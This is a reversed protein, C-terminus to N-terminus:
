PQPRSSLNEVSVLAITPFTRCVATLLGLYDDRSMQTAIGIEVTRALKPPSRGPIHEHDSHELERLYTAIRDLDFVGNEVQVASFENVVSQGIWVMTMEVDISIVRESSDREVASVFTGECVPAIQGKVLEGIWV